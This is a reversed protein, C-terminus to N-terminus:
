IKVIQLQNFDHDQVIPGSQVLDAPVKPLSASVSIIIITNNLPCFSLAPSFDFSIKLVSSPYYRLETRRNKTMDNRQIIEM